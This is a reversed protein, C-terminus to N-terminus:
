RELVDDRNIRLLIQELDLTSLLQAAVKGNVIVSLSRSGVLTFASSWRMLEIDDYRISRRPGILPVIELHDEFTCVLYRRLSFWMAFTVVVFSSFFGLMVTEDGDFVGVMCLWSLMIGLLGMFIMALVLVRSMIGSIVYTDHHSHHRETMDADNVWNILVAILPTGACVAILLADTITSLGWADYPM